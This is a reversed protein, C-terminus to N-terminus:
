AAFPDRTTQTQSSTTISLHCGTPIHSFYPPNGPAQATNKCMTMQTAINPHPRQQCTPKQTTPASIFIYIRAAPEISLHRHYPNHLSSVVCYHESLQADHFRRKGTEPGEIHHAGQKNQSGTCDSKRPVLVDKRPQREAERQEDAYKVLYRQHNKRPLQVPRESFGPRICQNDIATCHRKHSPPPSLLRKSKM